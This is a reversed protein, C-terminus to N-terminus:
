PHGGRQYGPREWYPTPEAAVAERETQNMYKFRRKLSASRASYAIISWTTMIGGLVAIAVLLLILKGKTNDGDSSGGGGGSFYDSVNTWKDPIVEAATYFNHLNAFTNWGATITNGTSKHRWWAAWSSTMIALGSGLCPFIIVIYALDFFVQLGEADLLPATIGTEEDTIPITAAAIGIVLSYCWTFGVAAMVAGMWNMFSPVGGIAKSETWSQGCGWANFISIGLNVFWLLFIM